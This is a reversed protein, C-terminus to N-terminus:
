RFTLAETYLIISSFSSHWYIIFNTFAFVVRFSKTKQWVKQMGITIGTSRSSLANTQNHLSRTWLLPRWNVPSDWTVTGPDHTETNRLRILFFRSKIIMLVHHTLLCNVLSDWIVTGPDHLALGRRIGGRDQFAVANAFIRRNPSTWNFALSVPPDSWFLSRYRFSMVASSLLLSASNDGKDFVLFFLIQSWTILVCIVISPFIITIFIPSKKLLIKLLSIDM